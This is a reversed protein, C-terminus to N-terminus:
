IYQMHSLPQLFMMASSSHMCLGCSGAAVHCGSVAYPRALLCADAQTARVAGRRYAFIYIVSQPHLHETPLLLRMAAYKYDLEELARDLFMRVIAM